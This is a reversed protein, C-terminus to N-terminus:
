VSKEELVGYKVKVKQWENAIIENVEEATERFSLSGAMIQTTALDFLELIKKCATQDIVQVESEELVGSTSIGNDQIHIHKDGKVYYIM